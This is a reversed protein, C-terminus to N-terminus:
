LLVVSLTRRHDYPLPYNRILSSGRYWRERMMLTSPNRFNLSQWLQRIQVQSTLIAQLGLGLELSSAEQRSGQALGRGGWIPTERLTPTM